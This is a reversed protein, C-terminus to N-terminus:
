KGIQMLEVILLQPKEDLLHDNYNWIQNVVFNCICIYTHTPDCIQDWNLSTPMNATVGWHSRM